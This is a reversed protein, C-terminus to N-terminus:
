YPAVLRRRGIKGKSGEADVFNLELHNENKTVIQELMVYFEASNECDITLPKSRIASNKKSTSAEITHHGSEVGILFYEKPGLTRYIYNGVRYAPREVFEDSDEIFLYIACEEKAAISQAMELATKADLYLEYPYFFSKSNYHVCRGRLTCSNGTGKEYRNFKNEDFEIVLWVTGSFVGVVGSSADFPSITVLAGKEEQSAYVWVSNKFRSFNPKGFVEIVEETTSIGSQLNKLAGTSYTQSNEAPLFLCGGLLPLAIGLISILYRM